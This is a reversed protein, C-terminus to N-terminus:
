DPLFRSREARLVADGRELDDIRGLDLWYAAAELTDVPHGNEMLGRVLDPMDLREGRPIHDRIVWPSIVYVGMSVLYDLKPKERYEHLRGDDDVDLVGFDIDVERRSTCITIGAEDAHSRLSSAFDLDTLTDGNVVLIPEDGDVQILSLCGATGLPEEEEVYDITVGWQSGDGCVAKILGALHGVSITVRDFGQLGLQRILIEIIPMEGIPVLPKPISFTFPRLRSGKGGALIVARV